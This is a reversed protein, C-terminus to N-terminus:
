LIYMIQNPHCYKELYFYGDKSRAKQIVYEPTSPISVIFFINECSIRDMERYIDEGLIEINALEIHFIIKEGEDMIGIEKLYDMFSVLCFKVQNPAEFAKIMNTMRTYASGGDLDPDSNKGRSADFARALKEKLNMLHLQKVDSLKGNLFRDLYNYMMSLIYQYITIKKSDVIVHIFIFNDEDSIDRNITNSAKFGVVSAIGCNSEYLKTSYKVM